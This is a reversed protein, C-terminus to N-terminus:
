GALQARVPVGVSSKASGCPQGLRGSAMIAQRTLPRSM